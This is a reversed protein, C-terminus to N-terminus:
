FGYHMGFNLGISLPYMIGNQTNNWNKLSQQFQLGSSMSVHRNVRYQLRAGGFIEAYIRNNIFGSSNGEYAIIENGILTKGRNISATNMSLGGFIETKFGHLNWERGCGLLIKILDTTNHHVVVREAEVFEEVNGYVKEIEGTTVNRNIRIVTDTLVLLYDSITSRYNLQSNLRQYQLGTLLFARSGMSKKYFGQIQYSPLNHEYQIREPLKQESGSRWFVIGTEIYVQNNPRHHQKSYKSNLSSDKKFLFNIANNFEITRLSSKKEVNSFIPISSLKKALINNSEFNKNNNNFGFNPTHTNIITQNLIKHTAKDTYPDWTKQNVKAINTSINSSVTKIYNQEYKKITDINVIALNINSIEKPIKNYRTKSNNSSSIGHPYKPTNSNVQVSKQLTETQLSKSKQQESYSSIKTPKEKPNIKHIHKQPLGVYTLTAIVVFLSAWLIYRKSIISKTEPVEQSKLKNMKDLIGSEMNEWLFKEPLESRNHTDFFDKM